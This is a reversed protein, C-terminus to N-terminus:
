RESKGKFAPQHVDTAVDNEEDEERFCWNAIHHDEGREMGPQYDEVQLKDQFHVRPYGYGSFMAM